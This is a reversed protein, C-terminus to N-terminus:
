TPSPFVGTWAIIYRVTLFPMRNEHPQSGGAPALATAALQTDAPSTLYLRPSNNAAPLNAEPSTSTGGATSALLPHSHVPIQQATLTLSEVGGTQGLNYDSSPEVMHVPVRGRLDPLNFTEEGDGGYTTGILQFLTEFDAIPLVAGDCDFWGQPAFSGAFMRIEGVYASM